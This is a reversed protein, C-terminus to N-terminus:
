EKVPIGREKAINLIRFKHTFFGKLVDPLNGREYRCYFLGTQNQEIILPSGEGEKRTAEQARKAQKREQAKAMIDDYSM